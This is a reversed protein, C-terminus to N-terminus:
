FIGVAIKFAPWIQNPKEKFLKKSYLGFAGIGWQVRQYSSPMSGYMLAVTYYLPVPLEGRLYTFWATLAHEFGSNDRIIMGSIGFNLPDGYPVLFPSPFRGGISLLFSIRDHPRLCVELGYGLPNGIMAYFTFFRIKQSVSDKTINEKGLVQGHLICPMAVFLLIILYRKV